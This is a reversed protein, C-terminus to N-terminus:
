WNEAAKSNSIGKAPASTLQITTDARSEPLRALVRKWFCSGVPRVESIHYRVSVSTPTPGQRMCGDGREMDRHTCTIYTQMSKGLVCGRLGELLDRSEMEVSCIMSWTERWVRPFLPPYMRLRVVCAPRHFEAIRGQHSNSKARICVDHQLATASNLALVDGEPTPVM